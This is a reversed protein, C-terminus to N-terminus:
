LSTNMQYRLVADHMMYHLSGKLTKKSDGPAVSVLQAADRIGDRSPPIGGVQAAEINSVQESDVLADGLVHDRDERTDRVLGSRFIGVFQTGLNLLKDAQPAWFDPCSGRRCRSREWREGASKSRFQGVRPLIFGADAHLGPDRM